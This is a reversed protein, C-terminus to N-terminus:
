DKEEELNLVANIKYTKEICAIYLRGYRPTHQTNVKLWLKPDTTSCTLVRLGFDGDDHVIVYEKESM